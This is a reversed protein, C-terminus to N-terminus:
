GRVVVLISALGIVVTRARGLAIAIGFGAFVVLSYLGVGAIEGPPPWTAVVGPLDGKWM